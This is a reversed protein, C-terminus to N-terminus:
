SRGELRWTRCWDDSPIAGLVAVFVDAAFLLPETKTAQRTTHTRKKKEYIIKGHEAQIDNGQTLKGFSQDQLPAPDTLHRLDIQVDTSGQSTAMLFLLMPDAVAATTAMLFLLM